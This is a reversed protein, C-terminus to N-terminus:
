GTVPRPTMQDDIWTSNWSEEMRIEDLGMSNVWQFGFFCIGHKNWYFGMFYNYVYIYLIILIYIIYGNYNYVM